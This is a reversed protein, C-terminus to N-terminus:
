TVLKFGVTPCPSRAKLPSRIFPPGTDCCTHCTFSAESNFAMLAILMYTYLQLGDDTITVALPCIFIAWTAIFL